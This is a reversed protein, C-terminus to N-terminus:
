QDATKQISQGANEIDKGAGKFANCGLISTMLFLATLVTLFYKLQLFNTKM